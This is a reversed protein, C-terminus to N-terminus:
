RYPDITLVVLAREIKDIACIDRRLDCTEM